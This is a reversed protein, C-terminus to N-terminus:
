NSGAQIEPLAVISTLDTGSKMAAVETKMTDWDAPVGWYDSRIMTGEWPSAGVNWTIDGSQSLFSKMYGELDTQSMNTSCHSMLQSAYSTPDSLAAVKNVSSQVMARNNCQRVAEGPGEYDHRDRGFVLAQRGNLTQSGASVSVTGGQIPDALSISVPVDVDVGGMADVFSAWQVFTMEFYYPISIGLQSGVFKCTTAAGYDHMIQNIKMEKGDYTVNTDRAISMLSIYKKQPDVYALMLVDSYSNSDNYKKEDVTGDRTDGGIIMCFFPQSYSSSSGSAQTDSVSLSGTSSSAATNSQSCGALAFVSALAACLMLALMKKKFSKM